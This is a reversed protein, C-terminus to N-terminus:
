IESALLHHAQWTIPISSRFDGSEPQIPCNFWGLHSFLLSSASFLLRLLSLVKYPTYLTTKWCKTITRPISTASKLRLQYTEKPNLSRAVLSHNGWFVIPKNQSYGLLLLTPFTSFICCQSIRTGARLGLHLWLLSLFPVRHQRLRTRPDLWSRNLM